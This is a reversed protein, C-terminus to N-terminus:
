INTDRMFRLLTADPLVTYAARLLEDPDQPLLEQGNPGPGAMAGATIPEGPRATPAFLADRIGGIVPAQGNQAPSGPSTPQAPGGNGQTIPSAQRLRDQAARAGYSQGSPATQTAPKPQRVPGDTRQSLGGPGSVAAPSNPQRYGGRGRGRPM